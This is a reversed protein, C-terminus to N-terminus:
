GAHFGVGRRGGDAPTRVDARWRHWLRRLVGQRQPRLPTGLIRGLLATVAEAAPHGPQALGLPLGDAAARQVAEPDDPVWAIVPGALYKETEARMADAGRWRNVVVAWESGPVGHAGLAEIWLRTRRLAGPEPTTVALLVGPSGEPWPGTPFAPAPPLDVVVVDFATAARRLLRPLTPPEILGALDPRPPGALVRLGSRPHVLWQDLWGEDDGDLLPQLDLVTPGPPLDLAVAADAAAWHADVLGCRLGHVAAAVALECALWTRGAGGKAGGVMVLLGGRAAVPDRRPPPPVAERQDRPISGARRGATTPDTAQPRPVAVGDPPAAVAPPPGGLGPPGPALAPEERGDADPIADLSAVVRVGPEVGLLAAAAAQWVDLPAGPPALLYLDGQGHRERIIRGSRLADALDGAQVLWLDVPGRPDTVADATRALGAPAWGPRRALREIQEPRLGVGYWWTKPEGTM